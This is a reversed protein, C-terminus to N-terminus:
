KYYEKYKINNERAKEYLSNPSLFHSFEFTILKSCYQNAIDIKKVIVDFDQPPLAGDEGRYFTEVNSWMEIHYKDCLKKIQALYLGLEEVKATGDQFACVDIDNGVVSFIDDWVDYTQQPSLRPEPYYDLARFFPSILIKKDPTKEKILDILGRMTPKINYSNHGTEHPIYWGVFCKFKSYREMIEDIYIRNMKIEGEYDGDNWCLNSIYMGLYVKIGRKEAEELVFKLFDKYDMKKDKFAKSPYLCKDYFISRMVVVTDIGVEQMADFDKQWEKEQWYQPVIDYTIEDIFTATLPYKAM